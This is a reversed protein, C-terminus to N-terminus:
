ALSGLATFWESAREVDGREWASAPLPSPAAVAGGAGVLGAAGVTLSLFLDRRNVAKTEKV